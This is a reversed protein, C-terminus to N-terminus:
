EPTIVYWKNFIMDPDYKRKLAQLRPYHEGFILASRDVNKAALEEATIEQDLYGCYGFNVAPNTSLKEEAELLIGILESSAALAANIKDPTNEKWTVLCVTSISSWRILATSERPISLTKNTPILELVYSINVNLKPALESIRDLVAVVADPKVGSIFGGKMYYGLGHPVGANHLTNAQEYTVEKCTDQAPDLEYFRKFHERGEAEPGNWFLSLVTCPKGDSGVTLFQIVTEKESPGDDWWEKIAKTVSEVTSQPFVLNGAFVTPRQPHLQLVFETVVGFNPGGGRVAWFLDQNETDSATLISGDAIVITVQKVNDIVLGHQGSLHGFGGGLALGGVGVHNVTGGPTALGHKMGADDVSKWVAGGGVYAIKKEPDVKVGALYRSLDIVIGDAASSSGAVNHGGCRVAFQLNHTRAHAIVGAVDAEDRVFAVALAHREANVAWRGIAKAYDAHGPTVWDGKFPDPPSLTQTSSM